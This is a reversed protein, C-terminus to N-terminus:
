GNEHEGAGRESEEAESSDGTETPEEGQPEKIGTASAIHSMAEHGENAGFVKDESAEHYTGPGDPHQYHHSVVQGEGVKRVYVGDLAKPKEHREGRATKMREM